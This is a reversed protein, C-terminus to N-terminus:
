KFSLTGITGWIPIMQPVPNPLNMSYRYELFDLFGAPQVVQFTHRLKIRWLFIFYIVIIMIM